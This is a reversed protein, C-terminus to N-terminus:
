GCSPVVCSFGGDDTCTFTYNTDEDSPHLSGQGGRDYFLVPPCVADSKVGARTDLDNVADGSGNGGEIHVFYTGTGVIGGDRPNFLVLRQEDGADASLSATLPLLVGADTGADTGTVFFTLTATDTAANPPDSLLITSVDPKKNFQIKFYRRQSLNAGSCGQTFLENLDFYFGPCASVGADSGADASGADMGADTSASVVSTSGKGCGLAVVWVVGHLKLIRM